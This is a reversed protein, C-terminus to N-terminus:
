SQALRHCVRLRAFRWVKHPPMSTAASMMSYKLAYLKATKLHRRKWQRCAVEFKRVCTSRMLCDNTRTAIGCLPSGGGIMIVCGYSQMQVSRVLDMKRVLEDSLTNPLATESDM